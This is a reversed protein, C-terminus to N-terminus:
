DPLCPKGFALVCRQLGTQGRPKRLSEHPSNISSGRRSKKLLEGAEGTEGWQNYQSRFKWSKFKM